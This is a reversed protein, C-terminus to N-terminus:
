TAACLMVTDSNLRCCASYHVSGLLCCSQNESVLSRAAVPLCKRADQALQLSETRLAQVQAQLAAVKAQAAQSADDSKKFARQM